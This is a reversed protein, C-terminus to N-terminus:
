DCAELYGWTVESTLLDDYHGQHDGKVSRDIIWKKLLSLNSM